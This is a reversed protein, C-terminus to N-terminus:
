PAPPAHQCAQLVFFTYKNQQGDQPVKMTIMSTLSIKRMNREKRLLPDKRKLLLLIKFFMLYKLNIWPIIISIILPFYYLKFFSFELNNSNNTNSIVWCLFNLFLVGGGFFFIIDLSFLMSIACIISLFDMLISPYLSISNFTFCICLITSFTTFCFRYLFFLYALFLLLHLLVLMISFIQM